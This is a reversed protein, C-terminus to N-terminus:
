QEPHREMVAAGVKDGMRTKLLKTFAAMKKDSVGNDFTVETRHQAGTDALNDTSTVAAVARVGKMDVGDYSGGTLSWAMLADRGVTVVEGNFHCPGCLVSATRAEVYDGTIKPSASAKRTGSTLGALLMTSSLSIAVVAVVPLIKRKM